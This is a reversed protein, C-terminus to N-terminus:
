FHPTNHFYIDLSSLYGSEHDPTCSHGTQQLQFDEAVETYAYRTISGCTAEGWVNCEMLIRPGNVSYSLMPVGAFALTITELWEDPKGRTQPLDLTQVRGTAPDVDATLEVTIHIGDADTTDRSGTFTNGTFAGRVADIQVRRYGEWPGSTANYAIRTFLDITCYRLPTLNVSPVVRLDGLDMTQDTRSTWPISIAVDVSDTGTWVRIRSEGPFVAGTIQFRGQGDTAISSTGGRYVREGVLSISSVTAGVVASGNPDVLRGRM